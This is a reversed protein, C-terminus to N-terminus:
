IGGYAHTVVLRSEVEEVGPIERVTQAVASSLQSHDVSGSLIVIGDKVRVEIRVPKFPGPYRDALFSRIMWELRKDALAARTAESEQFAPADVLLRLTRVCTETPVNSTNLVMHYLLPDEWKVGFLSQTVRSHAADNQEIERRAVSADDMGLRQMMVRVRFEMPACVRIRLVNPLDRLLVTAGWGRIIVNGQRALELVELATVRSLKKKDIWWRELLTAGGELYHHVASEQVGLREALSHEVLEHHVIKLDLTEALGQAVDKGLTGMERTMAIVAM